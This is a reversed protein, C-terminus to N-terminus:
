LVFLFKKLSIILFKGFHPTKLGKVIPWVVPSSKKFTPGFWSKMPKPLNPIGTYGIKDIV